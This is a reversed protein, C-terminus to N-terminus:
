AVHLLELLPQFRDGLRAAKLIERVEDVDIPPDNALRLLIGALGLALGARGLLQAMVAERRLAPVAEGAGIDLGCTFLELRPRLAEAVASQDPEIGSPGVAGAPLIAEIRAPALAPYRPPQSPQTGTAAILHVHAAAEGSLVAGAARLSPALRFLDLIRDELRRM